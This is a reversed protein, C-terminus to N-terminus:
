QLWRPDGINNDKIAQSTVKFNGSAADVFGPDVETASIQAPTTYLGVLLNLCGFINNNAYTPVAVMNAANRCWNGSMVNTPSAIGTQVFLCNRVELKNNPGAAGGARFIGTNNSNDIGSIKYFTCNKFSTNCAIQMRLFSRFGNAFTTNEVTLSGLTGARFDIGDGGSGTISHIYSNSVSISGYTGAATNTNYIFQDKYNSIECDNIALSTLNCGAVTNFFQSLLVVPDANGRFILSKLEISAVATGCTLQGKIIPKNNSRYGSLKVSKTLAYSGLEYTGPFVVFAAGEPAADLIAKLDDGPNIAVAGGLDILTTFTATGRTKTGNMLKATYLTEGALGTVTAIGATKEEATITHEINGPTVVIHSANSRAQWRLVVETAAIDDDRVPLFINEAATAIVVAAWKSDEVDEASVAKVRASYLTEGEFAHQYPLDKPTVTATHIITNFELNDESFEVVYHDVDARTDWTLEITTQNRVRATLDIPALVRGLEIEKILPDIKDECAIFGLSFVGIFFAIYVYKNKM